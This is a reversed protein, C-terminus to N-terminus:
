HVACTRKQPYLPCSRKRQVHRSKVWLPCPTPVRIQYSQADDHVRRLPAVHLSSIFNFLRRLTSARTPRFSAFRRDFTQRSGIELFLDGIERPVLLPAHAGSLSRLFEPTAQPILVQHGIPTQRLRAYNAAIAQCADQSRSPTLPRFLEDLPRPEPPTRSARLNVCRHSAHSRSVASM